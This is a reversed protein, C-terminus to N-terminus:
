EKNKEILQIAKKPGRNGIPKFKKGTLKNYSVFFAVIEELKNEDLDKITNLTKYRDSENAAGVLRDNRVMGKADSEKAEIVGLVKCEVLCGPYSPADMFVLADLPDGDAGKTCPVFGFHLPFILGEPLIKKLKFLQTEEDFAYKNSSGKPTEIIVNINNSNKIFAPPFKM